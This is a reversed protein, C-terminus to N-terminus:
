DGDPEGKTYQCDFHRLTSSNASMDQKDLAYSITSKLVHYTSMIEVKVVDGECLLRNCNKCLHQM